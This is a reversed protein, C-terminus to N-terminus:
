PEPHLDWWLLWRMCLQLLLLLQLWSLTQVFEM